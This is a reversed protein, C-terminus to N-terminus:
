DLDRALASRVADPLPNVAHRYHEHDVGISLTAGSKMAQVM